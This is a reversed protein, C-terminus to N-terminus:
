CPITSDHRRTQPGGPRRAQPGRGEARPERGETESEGLLAAVSEFAHILGGVADFIGVHAKLLSLVIAFLEETEHRSLERATHCLM